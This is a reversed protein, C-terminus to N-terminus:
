SEGENCFIERLRRISRAAREDPPESDEGAVATLWGQYHLRDLEIKVSKFDVCGEGLVCFTESEEKSLDQVHVYQICSGYIQIIRAPDAEMLQLHATDPCFFVTNTDVLNLLRDIEEESQVRDGRQPLFYTYLDYDLCCKALENIAEAMVKFDTRIDSVLERSGTSVVLHRAGMTHLFAAIPVHRHITEERMEPISWDGGGMVATLELRCTRLREQLLETRDGFREVLFTDGEIGAFGSEASDEIAQEIRDSPWASTQFAFTYRSM